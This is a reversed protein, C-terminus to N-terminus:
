LKDTFVGANNILVHIPLDLKKFNEVFEDISKFDSLDLKMSTIKYNENEDKFEKTISEMKEMDRSAMVVNAGRLALVRATEKGIGSTTGTVIITKGKLDINKSVEEATTSSSFGNQTQGM